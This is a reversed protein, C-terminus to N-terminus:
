PAAFMCRVACLAHDRHQLRTNQDFAPEVFKLPRLTRIESM